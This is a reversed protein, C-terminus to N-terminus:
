NRFNHDIFQSLRGLKGAARWYFQSIRVAGQEELYAQAAELKDRPCAELTYFVPGDPAVEEVTGEPPEAVEKGEPDYYHVSSEEVPVKVAKAPTDAHRPAAYEAPMEEVTYLGGLQQVFAERLALSKACKSLMISPMQRWIPTSKGYESMYAVAVAPYRRDKRYVKCEVALLKSKDWVQTCEIGDFQPHSNAIRLFGNIGTMIQLRGAAKIAWVEKLIPNLGTAAVIQSFLAFESDTLDPAITRRLTNLTELSLPETKILDNSMHEETKTEILKL